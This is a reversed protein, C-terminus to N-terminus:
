EAVEFRHGQRRQSRAILFVMLAALAILALSIPSTVFISPDGRSMTMARRFNEELMPGLIFGLVLPVTECGIALLVWGLLTIAAAVYITLVSGNMAILGVCCILLIFPFLADYPVRLLQVWVGVLPLNLVVLMLNGIWMSAILAWFTVPNAEMIRPGPVVDHMLMAGILLATTASSPLGLTLLPVFSTQVSANNASEPSALGRVDGKGFSEPDDAVRKEVAYAFWSAITAGVGPLLGLLAGIGTGRVIAPAAARAEERSPWLTGVHATRRVANRPLRMNKVIEMFAFLGMALAVFDIGDFFHLSGFTFRQAGSNPDLGVLGLMIGIIASAVAMVISGRAFIMLCALGVLMLSFYEAPGFLLAVKALPAALGAVFLTAVTGAFFSGIAAIALAAGARGRKAMEHGDICTVVSSSEGPLNILIATTSGGYQTGYYIGSLMILASIPELTFTLPLLMAITPAPGLGPLVGVATGLLCGVLCLALNEVTLAAGFGIALHHILDM